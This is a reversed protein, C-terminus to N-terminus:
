AKNTGSKGYFIMDLEQLTYTHTSKGNIYLIIDGKRLGAKQAPAGERLEIIAYAPKLIMKYQRELTVKVDGRENPM